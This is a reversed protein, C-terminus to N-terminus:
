RRKKLQPAEGIRDLLHLLSLLPHKFTMRPGSYRMVERIRRRMKASYCHVTCKNCAPKQDHFPCADLRRFAYDLLVLCDTCLDDSTRHHVNCYIRMMADITKKEREIRGM